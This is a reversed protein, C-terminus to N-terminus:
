VDGGPISNWNVCRENQNYIKEELNKYKKNMCKIGEDCPSGYFCNGCCRLLNVEELLQEIRSELIIIKSDM